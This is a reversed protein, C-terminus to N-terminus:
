ISVMFILHVLAATVFRLLQYKARLHKRQVTKNLPSKGAIVHLYVVKSSKKRMNINIIM